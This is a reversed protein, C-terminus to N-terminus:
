HTFPMVYEKFGFVDGFKDLVTDVLATEFTVALARRRGEELDCYYKALFRLVKWLSATTVRDAKNPTMIGLGHYFNNRSIDLYSHLARGMSNADGERVIIADLAQRARQVSCVDGMLSHDDRPAGPLPTAPASSDSAGGPSFMSNSGGISPNPSALSITLGISANIKAMLEDAAAAGATAAASPMPSLPIVPTAATGAATAAAQEAVRAARAEDISRKSTAM